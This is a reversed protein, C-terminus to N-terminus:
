AGSPVWSNAVGRRRLIKSVERVDADAPIVPGEVTAAGVGPPTVSAASRRAVQVRRVRQQTERAETKKRDAIAQAAASLPRASGPSPARRTTGNTRPEVAEFGYLAARHELLAAVTAPVVQHGSQVARIMDQEADALFADVTADDIGEPVMQRAADMCAMAHSMRARHDTLQDRSQQLRDRLAVRNNARNV